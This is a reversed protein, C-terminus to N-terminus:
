KQADDAAAAEGEPLVGIRLRSPRNASRYLRQTAAQFDDEDALFINEVFTQPNRDVLPFWTSQVQVMIRHGPRFTHLVDQLEFQVNTPENPVFPTPNEYSEKFRGRFVESRVMMQYGGLRLHDQMDPYDEADPPYVDILKVVWDSDTGSTSVWLDALMSGALTVAETLPETQYVLVDPRRAAFRQDDTMYPRTMGTSIQETFPVPKAPDSIYQDYAPPASSPPNFTLGGGERFYLDRKQVRAPPWQDFRRWQNAGTEYMLAEPLEPAPANKLHHMFFPFEVNRQYWGSIDEGFHINGLQSGTGRSWGGHPWPGMVIRNDVDPNKEEVSAYIKLPGYLDEADFWGGVTLVAPSVDHLHPLINRAQWFEDYNPHAVLDNWFAVEGKLYKENANRLPGMDLFFQYGDPTGHDFRPAGQTTPEPRPQGFSALFNFAHPLFFAGHHHFDDYWWDAIPAQPSSAVLAPHADIMGAATYFGPYSIGWQGVRGNHNPVAGLIWQITDYTDTSEDIDANGRKDAVHPTMNVFDGESMYKGRVDQYVFIFGEEAFLMSPGLSSRFEDPGYPRVTYPTRFLMIPYDRTTDKPEYIATFLKVGDRMPISVERKTYYRRVFAEADREALRGPDDSRAPLSSGTLTACGAGLALLPAATLSLVLRRFMTMPIEKRDAIVM